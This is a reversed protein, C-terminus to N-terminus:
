LHDLEPRQQPLPDDEIEPMPDDALIGYLSMLRAHAEAESMQTAGVSASGLDRALLDSIAEEPSQRHVAAYETLQRAVSEPLNITYQM